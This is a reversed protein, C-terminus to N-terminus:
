RTAVLAGRDDAHIWAVARAVVEADGVTEDPVIPIGYPTRARDAMLATTLQLTSGDSLRFGSNATSLGCTAAGFSRADPRARFSVVVAEGSSAVGQDTLVAVRPTRAALLSYTASTRVIETTGNSAAGGRVSWDVAAGSPAVFYGVVGDGLIPEVGAVMPWMNGGGNGRVDVIWGALNPRDAARIQQQVSDAFARDAGPTADSFSTIKVYGIDAPVLPPSGAGGGCGPSRPNGIGGGGAAQYFSHHDDLLGLALTIAPRLDNITQAGAARQAVQSRFDSWNIRDRNISNVQMVNLLENTYDSAVRSAGPVQTALPAAPPTPAM